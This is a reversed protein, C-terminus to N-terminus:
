VLNSVRISPAQRPILQSELAKPRFFNHVVAEVIKPDFEKCSFVDLYMEDNEEAFHAIINSTEILQVLTFGAKNGSGFHKLLPTGYAVMDIRKVLKDSFQLINQSSRIMRRDCGGANVIMHLGWTRM